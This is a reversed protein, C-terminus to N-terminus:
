VNVELLATKFLFSANEIETSELLFLVGTCYLVLVTCDKFFFIENKVFDTEFYYYELREFNGGIAM